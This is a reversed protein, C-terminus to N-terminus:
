LSKKKQKDCIKVYESINESNSIEIPNAELIMGLYVNNKEKDFDRGKMAFWVQVDSLFRQIDFSSIM